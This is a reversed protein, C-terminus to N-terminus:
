RAPLKPPLRFSTQIPFTAENTRTVIELNKLGFVPLNNIKFIYSGIKVGAKVSKQKNFKSVKANNHEKNQIITFGLPNNKFTSTDEVGFDIFSVSHVPYYKMSNLIFDHKKSFM